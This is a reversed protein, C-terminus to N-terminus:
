RQAELDSIEQELQQRETKIKAILRELRLKEESRTELIKQEELGALKESILQWQQELEALRQQLRKPDKERETKSGIAAQSSNPGLTTSKLTITYRPKPDNKDGWRADASWAGDPKEKKRTEVTIQKTEPDLTLLNYQLPIGPVQERTPAGFTGAGIIHLGRKSDYKYFGEQAEHIHGHMCIQFGHVTLLQLFEDNMMEKGTVPHHFVAIKLWGEYKNDQLKDLAKSLAEMNIGARNRFHHDVQWCSNLGVFLIKDDPREVFLVQDAYDLPYEQNFARKYLQANFHAFRKQYLGPDCKLAGAEGAPIYDDTLSNPLKHKPTYIYAEASLDWNLDHNGPVIVVRSADLGFRKVLGDLMAFAAQYEAETSYNAIDGSIVLYELRKVKLEKLLDTELQARYKTAQSSNDLHIDSLHLIHLQYDHEQTYQQQDTKFEQVERNTRQEVTQALKQQKEMLERDSRYREEISEPIMVTTSCYQCPIDLYGTKVREAVADRNTIERECKPCYLRIQEQIDIGKARLHDTVFRIFTVRDFENIAPVFYIELEGTGEEIQQMAFGLRQGNRSFEVAYKWQDERRFYDTYSLRVVLSAYITEISGSFRYTVETRPHTEPPMPRTVNIQSPFVLLGMERFCLDHRILLEATAELVIREQEQSLREFGAFALNGTLVDREPVAGIGQPHNRASQIISSAYQNILEPKLLIVTQNPRSALRYVIGRAQLLSVVTDIEAQTAPRETLRKGVEQQVTEMEILPEGQEKQELLFERIVQFLRPTTTRPLQHWPIHELIYQFLAEVGEGEKASTKFHHDLEYKALTEHLHKRDVTVPSVDCRASVLFKLAHPPAHKKLVKAWYPVGRFPDNPDSCDFLLLAVDTDDLFLQHIIRYEPQGALDWLTLEAQMNPFKEDHVIGKSVPIQWFQACHTSETPRFEKEALRIGLGSKGVGSDGVLVAKANVYHMTPTSQTTGLLIDFDLDWITIEGKTEGVVAMIPLTPHFLLNSLYNVGSIKSIHAVEVWNDTRWIVITRSRDISGLLRGQDFFSVSVVKDTHSELVNTEQGSKLDWVRVTRDDSGSVIRQGNPSWIISKVFNTHGKFIRIKTGTKSDWLRITTDWSCSCLTSNDPSWAVSEIKGLHGIMKNLLQRTKVNWLRITAGKTSSALFLENSAWAISTVASNHGKIIELTQGTETDWIRITKDESGSALIQGDPSWAVCVVASTHGELIRLFNGSDIEWLRVTKDASPSALIRGDPSLAM